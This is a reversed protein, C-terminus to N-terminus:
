NTEGTDFFYRLIEASLNLPINNLERPLLNFYWIVKILLNTSFLVGSM